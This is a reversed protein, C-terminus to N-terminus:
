VNNTQCTAKKWMEGPQEIPFVIFPFHPEGPICDRLSLYVTHPNSLNNKKYQWSLRPQLLKLLQGSASLADPLREILLVLQHSQPSSIKVGLSSLSNMRQTDSLINLRYNRKKDKIQPLIKKKKDACFYVGATKKLVLLNWKLLHSVDTLINWM